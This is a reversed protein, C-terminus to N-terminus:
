IEMKKANKLLYQEAENSWVGGNKKCIRDLNAFITKNEGDVTSLHEFEAISTLPLKIQTYILKKAGKLNPLNLTAGLSADIGGIHSIMYDPSIKGEEILRIADIMDQRNGGSSGVIHMSGYHINYFNVKAFFDKSMPGAFFNLCGDRALLENCMELLEVSPAFVFIDDYGENETMEMLIQKQNALNDTCLFETVTKSSNFHKKAFEVREKSIDTVVLKKPRNEAGNLAYDIACLGMPGGGALILMRGNPKIGMKHAYEGANTHYSSKFAGIICSIPEALSGLYCADSNYKILNETEMVENPIIVYQSDGGIFEYSYGPADLTGKYNLAPQIVFRDGKTFSKAWKAGVSVIEGCFEHGLIIPNEKIGCPVRKHNEGQMVAKYSSMCLSDTVVRALIEDDKIEPLDFAELRIDNKGYLRLAITKM